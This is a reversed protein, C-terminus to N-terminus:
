KFNAGLNLIPSFLNKTSVPFYEHGEGDIEKNVFQCYQNGYIQGTDNPSKEIEKPKIMACTLESTDQPIETLHKLPTLTGCGRGTFYTWGDDRKIMKSSCATIFILLLSLKGQIPVM